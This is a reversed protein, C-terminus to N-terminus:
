NCGLVECLKTQLEAGRLNRAIIKGSPDILMNQPISQIHYLLAVANNWFQLDSVHNWTLSDHNIAEVWKDKDGPKDLSVSLVTFNKTKFKNYNEVVNPNEMRCPRCWSAWFDLLVYKGKLSSLSLPKGTTDPQTFDVAESGVSGIKNYVIYQALSKGIESHRVSSDLLDFRKELLSLDDYFQATVYLVFPSVISHPRAEVYKDIEKQINQRINTYTVMLADRDPGAAMANITSAADNNAHVMPDFVAQFDKFDNQSKSGTVKLKDMEKADGTITIKSNELYFQFPNLNGSTIAYLGAEPVSGKLVFTGKTVTGKAFDAKTNGNIIKVEAGEALGTIKGTIVFGKSDGQASALVPLILLAFFFKKM